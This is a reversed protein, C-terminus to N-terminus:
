LLIALILIVPVAVLAAASMGLVFIRAFQAALDLFPHPTMPHEELDLHAKSEHEGRPGGDAMPALSCGNGSPLRNRAVAETETKGALLVEFEEREITEHELLSARLGTSRRGTRPSSPARDPGHKTANEVSM